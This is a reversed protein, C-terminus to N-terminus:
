VVVLMLSCVYLDLEVPQVILTKAGCSNEPTKPRLTPCVWQVYTMMLM